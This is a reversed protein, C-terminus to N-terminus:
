STKDSNINLPLPLFGDRIFEVAGLSRNAKTDIFVSKEAKESGWEQGLMERAFNCRVFQGFVGYAIM